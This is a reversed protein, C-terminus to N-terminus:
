EKSSQGLRYRRYRAAHIHVIIEGILGLAVAQVGLV